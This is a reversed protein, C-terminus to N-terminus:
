GWAKAGARALRKWEPRLRRRVGRRRERAQALLRGAALSSAHDPLDRAAQRITREALVADQHEGLFDQFRKARKVFRRAKRGRLPVALEAAYRARKGRIRLAHLDGDSADAPLAEGLRAARKFAKRAAHELDFDADKVPPAHVAGELEALLAYYRDSELTLRLEAFAASRRARLMVPLASVAVTDGEDLQAADHELGAILVDLDRVAGLATALVDLEARLRDAWDRDFMPRATRLLARLRRTAVRLDHVDEPGDRLRLGADAKLVERQLEAFRTQVHTLAPAKRSPRSTAPRGLVRWISAKGGHPKAGAEVLVREVRELDGGGNVPEAALEGFRDRVGHGELVQVDDVTVSVDDILRVSRTTRLTALQQLRRDGLQARLLPAFSDPPGAPGATGELELRGDDDATNLQWTNVGRELRRQLTLGSSALRRDGTDYYSDTFERSELATGGLTAPDPAAELEYRRV